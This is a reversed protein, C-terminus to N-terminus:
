NAMEEAPYYDFAGPGCPEPDPTSTKPPTGELFLFKDIEKFSFAQLKHFSRFENLIKVFRPYSWLDPHLFSAFNNQKQLKWLYEDVHSDYIPYASPNHWSAYKSAFSLFNFLKGNVKIKAIVDIIEPSGAALIRDIEAHNAYIHEAVTRVSFIMTHYLSNVAVVKLLVHRPDDNRPYQEFLETLTGEVLADENDFQQCAARVLEPTPLKVTASM